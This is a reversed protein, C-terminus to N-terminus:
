QGHSSRKEYYDRLGVRAYVINQAGRIFHFFDGDDEVLLQSDHRLQCFKNAAAALINLIEREEPTLCAM